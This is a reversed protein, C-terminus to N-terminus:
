KKRAMKLGDIAKELRRKSQCSRCRCTADGLRSQGVAYRDWWLLAAIAEKEAKKMPRVWLAPLDLDLRSVPEVNQRPRTAGPPLRLPEPSPAENRRRRWRACVAGQANVLGTQIGALAAQGLVSGVNSLLRM